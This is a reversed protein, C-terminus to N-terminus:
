VEWTEKYEAFLNQRHIQKKFGKDSTIKISFWQIPVLERLKSQNPSM